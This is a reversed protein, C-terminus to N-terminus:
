NGSILVVMLKAAAHWMTAKGFQADEIRQELVEVQQKTSLEETREADAISLNGIDPPDDDDPFLIITMPNRCSIRNVFHAPYMSSWARDGFENRLRETTERLLYRNNSAVMKGQCYM